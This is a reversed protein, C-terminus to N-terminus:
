ELNNLTPIIDDLKQEIEWINIFNDIFQEEYLTSIEVNDVFTSILKNKAEELEILLPLVSRAMCIFEINENKHLDKDKKWPELTAKDCMEKLAKLITM